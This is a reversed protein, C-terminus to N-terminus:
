NGKEGKRIWKKLTAFLQNVDLPKAIYDNMGITQCQEWEERASHATMAFIPIADFRTDARIIRVAGYGDMVPMQLDMLIADYPREMKELCDLAEQGNTALHVSAGALIERIIEQNIPNDEVVLLHVGELFSSFEPESLGTNVPALLNEQVLAEQLTNLLTSPDVPRYLLVDAGAAEMKRIIGRNGDTIIVVAPVVALQLSKKIFRPVATNGYYAVSQDLLVLDYNSGGKQALAAYAKGPDGVVDPTVGLQRIMALAAERTIPSPDVLLMRFSALSARNSSPARVNEEAKLDVVSVPVTLTIHTGSEQSSEASLSAELLRVLRRTVALNLGSGNTLPAGGDLPDAAPLFLELREKPLHLEPATISCILEARDGAEAEEDQRKVLPAGAAGSPREPLIRRTEGRFFIDKGCPPEHLLFDMLNSIIQGIHLPDGSIRSETIGQTDVHLAMGYSRAENEINRLAERLVEGPKFEIREVSMKGAEIRTFDLINNIIDLLATGEDHIKDIYYQQRKTLGSRKALYSMGLIANMPTRIEHSMNALFDTKAQGAATADDRANELERNRNELSEAMTNFSDELLALERVASTAPIRVALNGEKLRSAVQLLKRVPGLFAMRSLAWTVGLALIGVFALIGAQSLLLLFLQADLVPKAVTAVINLYPQTAPSLRLRDFAFLATRDSLRTSLIGSDNGAANVAALEGRSVGTGDGTYHIPAYHGGPFDAGFLILGNEDTIRINSIGSGKFTHLREPSIKVQMTVVLSGIVSEGDKVPYICFLMSSAEATYAMSSVVTFEQVMFASRLREREVFSFQIPMPSASALTHGNLDCRRIDLYTQSFLLLNQFIIACAEPDGEKIEEMQALTVMLTNAGEIIIRQERGINRAISIATAEAALVATRHASYGSFVILGLAPILAAFVILTVTGKISTFGPLKM